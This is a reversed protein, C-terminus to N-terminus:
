DLLHWLRTFVVTSTSSVVGCIDGLCFLAHSLSLVTFMVLLTITHYGREHM